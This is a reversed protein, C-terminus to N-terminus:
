MSFRDVDSIDTSMVDDPIEAGGRVRGPGGLSTPGGILSSRALAVHTHTHTHTHTHSYVCQLALTEQRNKSTDQIEVVLSNHPNDSGHNLLFQPFPVKAKVRQLVHVAVHRRNGRPVM